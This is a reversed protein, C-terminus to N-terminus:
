EEPPELHKRGFILIVIIGIIALTVPLLIYNIKTSGVTTPEPEVEVEDQVIPTAPEQTEENTTEETVTEEKTTTTAARCKGDINMADATNCCVCEDDSCIVFEGTDDGCCEAENDEYEWVNETQDIGVGPTIWKFETDAYWRKKCITDIGECLDQSTDLDFWIGVHNGDEFSCSADQCGCAVIENDFEYYNSNRSSPYCVGNLVCYAESQGSCCAYDNLIGFNDSPSDLINEPEKPEFDCNSDYGMAQHENIVFSETKTCETGVCLGDICGLPCEHVYKIVQDKPDCSYETVHCEDGQCKEVETFSTGVKVMCFDFDEIEEGSVLKGTSFGRTFKENGDTDICGKEVVNTCTGDKCACTVSFVSVSEDLTSTAEIFEENCRFEKLTDFNGDNDSDLCIDTLNQDNYSGYGNRFIDLGEDEENCLKNIHRCRGFRCGYDCVVQDIILNDFEDCKYETMFCDEGYCQQIEKLKSYIDRINCAEDKQIQVDGSTKGVASGKSYIDYGDSDLCEGALVVCEGFRCTHSDGCMLDDEDVNGDCDDDEGNCQEPNCLFGDCSGSPVARDLYSQVIDVDKDDIDKDGDVDYDSVGTSGTRSEVLDYDVDDVCNDGDVDPNWVAIVSFCLCIMILFYIVGKEMM